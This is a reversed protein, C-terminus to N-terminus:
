KRTASKQLPWAEKTMVQTDRIASLPKSFSDARLFKGSAIAMETESRFCHDRQKIAQNLNNVNDTGTSRAVAGRVGGTAERFVKGDKKLKEQRAEYVAALKTMMDECIKAQELSTVKMVQDASECFEKDYDVKPNGDTPGKRTVEQLSCDQTEEAVTYTNTSTKGNLDKVTLVLISKGDKLTEIKVASLGVTDKTPGSLDKVLSYGDGLEVKTTKGFKNPAAEMRGGFINVPCEKDACGLHRQILKKLVPDCNENAALATMSVLLVTSAMFTALFKM